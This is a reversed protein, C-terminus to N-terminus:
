LGLFGVLFDVVVNFFETGVEAFVAELLEEEGLLEAFWWSLVCPSLGNRVDLYGQIPEFSSFSHFGQDIMCDIVNNALRFVLRM